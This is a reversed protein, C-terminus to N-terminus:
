KAKSVQRVRIVYVGPATPSPKQIAKAFVGGYKTRLADVIRPIDYGPCVRTLEAPSLEPKNWLFAQLVDDEEVTVMRMSVGDASYCRTAHFWVTPESSLGPLPRQTEARPARKAAANRAEAQCAAIVADGDPWDTKALQKAISWLRVPIKSVDIQVARHRRFQSHQLPDAVWWVADLIRDAYSLAAEHASPGGFTSGPEAADSLEKAVNAVSTHYPYEAWIEQVSEAILRGYGAVEDEEGGGAVFMQCTMVVQRAHSVAHAALNFAALLDAPLSAEGVFPAGLQTVSQRGSSAMM